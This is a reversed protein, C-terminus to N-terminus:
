EVILKSKMQSHGTGCMISCEIEYTGAETLTVVKNRNMMLNVDLGNIKVGHSGAASDLVFNVTEGKKARYEQQDFEFNTAVIKIEKANDPVPEAEKATGCASVVVSFMITLILTLLLKKM